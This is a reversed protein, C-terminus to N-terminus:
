MRTRELRLTTLGVVIADGPGVRAERVRRGNVLVGNTSDLDRVVFGGADRVLEAHRRSVNGDTIVVDCERSRGLVLARREIGVRGGPWVLEFREITPPVGAPTPPEPLPAALETAPELAPEAAM